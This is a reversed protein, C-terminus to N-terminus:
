QSPRAFPRSFCISPAHFPPLMPTPSAPSAALAASIPPSGSYLSANLRTKATGSPSATLGSCTAAATEAYSRVSSHPPVAHSV